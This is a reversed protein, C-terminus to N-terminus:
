LYPDIVTGALPYIENAAVVRDSHGVEPSGDRAPEPTRRPGALEASNKKLRSIELRVPTRPPGAPSSAVLRNYAALESWVSRLRRKIGSSPDHKLWGIEIAHRILVRLMKLISLAAGPKKAYPQLIGVLVLPLNYGVAIVGFGPM